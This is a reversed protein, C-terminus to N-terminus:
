TLPLEEMNKKYEREKMRQKFRNVIVKKFFYGFGAIAFYAVVILLIWKGLGVLSETNGQVITYDYVFYGIMAPPGFCVLGLLGYGFYYFTKGIFRLFRNTKLAGIPTSLWAIVVAMAIFVFAISLVVPGINFVSDVNSVTANYSEPNQMSTWDTSGTINGWIFVCIGFVLITAVLLSIIQFINKSKEKDM